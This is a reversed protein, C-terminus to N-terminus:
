VAYPLSQTEYIPSKLRRFNNIVQAVKGTAMINNGMKGMINNGMKAMINNGESM